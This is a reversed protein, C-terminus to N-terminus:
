YIRTATFTQSPVARQVMELAAAIAAEKTAYTAPGVVLPSPNNGQYVVNRYLGTELDPETEIRFGAM